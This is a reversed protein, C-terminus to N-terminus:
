GMTSGQHDKKSGGAGKQERGVGERSGRFCGQKRERVSVANEFGLNPTFIIYITEGFGPWGM